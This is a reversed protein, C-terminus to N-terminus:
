RGVVVAVEGDPDTVSTTEDELETLDSDEESGTPRAEPVVESMVEDPPQQSMPGAAPRLRGDLTTQGPKPAPPPPIGKKTMAKAKKM